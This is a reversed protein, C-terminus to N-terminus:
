QRKEWEKIAARIVERAEADPVDDVANYPKGDFNFVASGSPSAQVRLGRTALPTGAIKEKLVEDIQETITKPEPPRNKEMERLLAAQKFPNMSPRRLKEAPPQAVTPAPAEPRPAPTARPTTDAPPTGTAGSRPEAVPSAAPAPAVGGAFRGLDRLTTLFGQGVNADQIEMLRAYRKGGIEVILRGTLNDRLVRLVEHAEASPPTASSTPTSATLGGLFSSLRSPESPAAPTVPHATGGKRAQEERWLRLGVYFLLGFGAIGIFGVIFFFLGGSEGSM